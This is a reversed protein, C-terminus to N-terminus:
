FPNLKTFFRAVWGQRAADALEGRGTYSLRADAIRTSLVRNDAGIDQMRVLGSVRLTEEGRALRVRKEGEVVLVRNSQVARVIVTMEGSLRNMQEAAGQGNFSAEAGGSLLGQPVWTFPKADPLRTATESARSSTSSTSKEGQTREVLLVTLIDGVQRAKDDAVLAGHLGPQFIAGQQPPAPLPAPYPAAVPLASAGGCGALLLVACLTGAARDSRRPPM